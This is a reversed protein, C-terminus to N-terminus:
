NRSKLFEEFTKRKIIEEEHRKISDEKQINRFIFALTLGTIAGFLHSEWSVGPQIPLIGWVMGGYFLAVGSAIAISKVDMRFFGSFFLFSALGYVIGSAGIHYTGGRAFLWVLLGTLVYNLLWIRVSLKEYTVLLIVSLILLPLTNSMLHEWNGHILPSTLIGILSQKERPNIGLGGLNWGTYFQIMNVFWMFTTFIIPILVSKRM